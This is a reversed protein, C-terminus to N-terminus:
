KSKNVYYRAMTLEPFGSLGSESIEEYYRMASEKLGQDEYAMAIFFKMRMQVSEKKIKQLTAELMYDSGPQLYFRGVEYFPNDKPVKRLEKELYKFAKQKNGEKKYTMAIFLIMSYETPYREYVWNFKERAERYQGKSFLLYCYTDYLYHYDPKLELARKMDVYANDWDAEEEYISGRYVRAFFNDDQLDIVKNFSELAEENKYLSKYQLKGLEMFFWPNDPDLETAKVLDKEADGFKGLEVNILGRDEYLYPSTNDIALARNVYEFAAKYDEDQKALNSLGILSVYDPRIAIAKTFFEKAMDYENNNYYYVGLGSYARDDQDDIELINELYAKYSPWDEAQEALLALNYLADTNNKDKKNAEQAASKALDYDGAALLLSSYVSAEEGSLDELEKNQFVAIAEQPDKKESYNDLAKNITASDSVGTTQCSLLAFVMIVPILKKFFNM